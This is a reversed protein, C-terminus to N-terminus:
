HGIYAQKLKEIDLKKMGYIAIMVRQAKTTDSDEVMGRLTAPAIQWSVGWKDKLWGCAEANKDTSLREWLKDIQEQTDCEVYLSIGENFKFYSGGNIAMFEQGNLQFRVIMVSGAPGPRIDEPVEQRRGLAELEKEGYYRTHLIRSGGNKNGFIESFASVYYQAAEEAGKNFILSPVITQTRSM